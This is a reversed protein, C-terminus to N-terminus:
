YQKNQCLNKITTNSYNVPEIGFKNTCNEIKSKITIREEKYYNKAVIAVECDLSNITLTGFYSTTQPV